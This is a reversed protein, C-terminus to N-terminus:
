PHDRASPEAAGSRVYLSMHGAHEPLGSRYDKALAYGRKALVSEMEQTPYRKWFSRQYAIWFRDGKLSEIEGVSQARYRTEGELELAYRIPEVHGMVFLPEQSQPARGDAAETRRMDDVLSRWDVYDGLRIEQAFGAAAWLISAAVAAVRLSRPRLQWLSVACLMLYPIATYIMYRPGFVSAPLVWSLVFLLLVPGLSFYILWGVVAADPDPAAGRRRMGARLARVAAVAVPFAMLVFGVAVKSKSFDLGSRFPGHLQSFYSAVDRWDPRTNWGLHEDMGKEIPVSGDAVLLAWPAFAVAVVAAGVGYPVIRSRDAWLLYGGEFLIVVWGFYHTYVMLANIVILAPLPSGWRRPSRLYRQFLWLSCLSLATLLSYMRLEQSFRILFGNLAVFLLALGAPAAGIGLEQALGIMAVIWVLSTLIPFLRLWTLNEGGIAMWLKLLIYFLPPHVRDQIAGRFLEGWSHRVLRMTFAEDAELTSTRIWSLRCIVFVAAPIGLLAFSAARGPLVSAAPFRPARGTQSTSSM